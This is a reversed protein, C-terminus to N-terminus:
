FRKVILEIFCLICGCVISFSDRMRLANVVEIQQNGLMYYQYNECFRVAPDIDSRLNKAFAERKSADFPVNLGLEVRTMKCYNVFRYAM